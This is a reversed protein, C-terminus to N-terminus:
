LLLMLDQLVILFVIALIPQFNLKQFIEDSIMKFLRLQFTILNKLLHNQNENKNMFNSNLSLCLDNLNLPHGLGQIWYFGNFQVILLHHYCFVILLCVEHQDLAMLSFIDFHHQNQLLHALLFLDLYYSIVNAIMSYSPLQSSRKRLRKKNGKSGKKKCDCVDDFQTQVIPLM